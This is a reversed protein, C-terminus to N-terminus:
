YLAPHMCLRMYLVCVCSVSGQHLTPPCRSRGPWDASAFLTSSLVSLGWRESKLQAGYRVVKAPRGHEDRVRSSCGRDMGKVRIGSFPTADDGHFTLPIDRSEVHFNMLAFFLSLSLWEIPSKHRHNQFYWFEMGIDQLNRMIECFNRTIQFSRDAIISTM